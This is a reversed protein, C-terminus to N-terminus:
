KHINNMKNQNLGDLLYNNVNANALANMNSPPLSWVGNLGNSEAGATDSTDKFEFDQITDGGGGGGMHFGGGGGGGSSSSSQAFNSVGKGVLKGVSGLISPLFMAILISKVIQIGIFFPLLLKKLAFALFGLSFGTLFSNKTFAFRATPRDSPTDVGTFAEYLKNLDVNVVHNKSFTEISRALLQSSEEGHELDNNVFSNFEDDIPEVTPQITVGSFITFKNYTPLHISKLVTQNTKTDFDTKIVVSDSKDLPQSEDPRNLRDTEQSVQSDRDSSVSELDDPVLINVSSVEEIYTKFQDTNRSKDMNPSSTSIGAKKKITASLKLRPVNTKANNQAVHEYTFDKVITSPTRNVFPTNQVSNLDPHENVNPQANLGLGDKEHNPSRELRDFVDSAITENVRYLFTQSPRGIRSQEGNSLSWSSCSIQQYFILMLFVLIFQNLM